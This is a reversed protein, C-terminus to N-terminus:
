IGTLIVLSSFLEEPEQKKSWFIFHENMELDGKSSTSPSESAKRKFRSHATYSVITSSPTPPPSFIALKWFLLPVIITVTPEELGGAALKTEAAADFSLLEESFLCKDKWRSIVPIKWLDWCHTKFREKFHFVQRHCWRGNLVADKGGLKGQSARGLGNLWTYLSLITSINMGWCASGGLKWCLWARYQSFSEGCVHWFAQSRNPGPEKGRNCEAPVTPLCFARRLMQLFSAWPYFTRATEM